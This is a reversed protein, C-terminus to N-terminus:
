AGRGSRVFRGRVMGVFNMQRHKLSTLESSTKTNGGKSEVWDVQHRQNPKM